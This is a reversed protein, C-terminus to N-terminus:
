TGQSNSKDSGTDRFAIQKRNPSYLYSREKYTEWEIIKGSHAKAWKEWHAYDDPKCYLLGYHGAKVYFTAGCHVVQGKLKKAETETFVKALKRKDSGMGYVYWLEQQSM